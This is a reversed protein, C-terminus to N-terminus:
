YCYGGPGYDTDDRKVPPPIDHESSFGCLTCYMGTKGPKDVQKWGGPQKCNVCYDGYHYFLKKELRPYQSLNVGCNECFINTSPDVENGCEPCALAYDAM